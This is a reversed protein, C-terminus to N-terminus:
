ELPERGQTTLAADSDAALTAYLNALDPEYRARLGKRPLAFTPPSIHEYANAGRAQSLSEVVHVAKVWEWPQLCGHEQADFFSRTGKSLRHAVLGACSFGWTAPPM